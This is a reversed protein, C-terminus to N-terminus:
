NTLSAADAPAEPAGAAPKDKLEDARRIIEEPRVVYNSLQVLGDRDILVVWPTGCIQYDEIMAPAAEAPGCHGLRQVVSLRAALQKLAALSNRRNGSTPTQLGVVVVDVDSRYHRALNELAPLGRSLSGPCAADFCILVIVRGKFEAVDLRSAAAPRLVEDVNWPPAPVGLVNRRQDPRIEGPTVIFSASVAGHERLFAIPDHWGDLTSSYGPFRTRPRASYLVRAPLCYGGGPERVTEIEDGNPMRIRLAGEFEPTMSVKIREEGIEALRVETAQGSIQLSMLLHGPELWDGDRIGFHLHPNYGGNIYAGKRGITGIQQGATVLDGASVLRDTGLHGYLSFFTPGDDPLRHEIVILNGYDKGVADANEWGQEIAIARASAHSIRVVGDAIAHVTEGQRYWGIDAGTHLTLRGRSARSPLGYAGNPHYYVPRSDVQRMISDADAFATRIPLCFQRADTHNVFYRQKVETPAAPEPPDAGDAYSVGLAVILWLALGKRACAGRVFRAPLAGFRRTPTSPASV